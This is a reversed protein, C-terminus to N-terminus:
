EFKIFMFSRRFYTENKQFIKSLSRSLFVIKMRVPKKTYVLCDLVDYYKNTGSVKHDVVIPLIDM